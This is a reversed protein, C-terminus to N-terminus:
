FIFYDIKFFYFQIFFYRDVDTYLFSLNYYTLKKEVHFGMKTTKKKKIYIQLLSQPNGILFDIIMTVYRFVYPICAHTM